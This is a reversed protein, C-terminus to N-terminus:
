RSAGEGGCAGAGLPTRDRQPGDHARQRTSHSAARCFGLGRQADWPHSHISAVNVVASGVVYCSQLLGPWVPASRWACARRTLKFTFRPHDSQPGRPTVVCWCLLSIAKPRPMARPSGTQPPPGRASAHQHSELPVVPSRSAGLVPTLVKRSEKQQWAAHDM